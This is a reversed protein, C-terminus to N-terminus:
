LKVLTPRATCSDDCESEGNAERPGRTGRPTPSRYIYGHRVKDIPSTTLVIFHSSEHNLQQDVGPPLSHTKSM